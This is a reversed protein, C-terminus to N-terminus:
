IVVICGSPATPARGAVFTDIFVHKLSREYRRVVRRVQIFAAILSAYILAWIAVDSASPRVRAVRFHNMRLFYEM